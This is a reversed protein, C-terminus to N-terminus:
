AESGFAGKRIDTVRIRHDQPVPQEPVGHGQRRVGCQCFVQFCVRGHIGVIEGGDKAIQKQLAIRGSQGGHAVATRIDCVTDPIVAKMELRKGPKAGGYFAAVECVCTDAADQKM